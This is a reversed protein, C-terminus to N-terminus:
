YRRQPASPRERGPDTTASSSGQPELTGLTTGGEPLMSSSSTKAM